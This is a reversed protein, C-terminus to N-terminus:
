HDTARAVSASADSSKSAALSTISALASIAQKASPRSAWRACRSVASSGWRRSFKRNSDSSTSDKRRIALLRARLDGEAAAKMDDRLLQRLEPPALVDVHRGELEDKEYGLWSLLRENAFVIIGSEDEAVLGCNMTNIVTEYDRLRELLLHIDM